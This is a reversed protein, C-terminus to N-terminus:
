FQFYKISGVAKKRYMKYVNRPNCFLVKAFEFCLKKDSNVINTNAPIM